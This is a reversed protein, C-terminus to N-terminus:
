IELGELENLRTDCGVFLWNERLVKRSKSGRVVV